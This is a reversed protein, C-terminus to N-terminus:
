PVHCVIVAHLNGHLRDVPTAYGVCFAGISSSEPCNPLSPAASRPGTSTARRGGVQRDAGVRVETAHVREHAALEPDHGLGLYRDRRRRRSIGARGRRSERLHRAATRALRSRTVPRGRRPDRDVGTRAHVSHRHSSRRSARACRGGREAGVAHLRDHGVRRHGQGRARQAPTPTETNVAEFSPMEAASPMEYDTLTSTLPNGDADYVYQEWLAQAMGQAIGGHQQGAVILPNFIRGCDDVAIHRIPTVYGTDLDVEVVAVHAGFPFTPGDQAFTSVAHLPQQAALQEWTLASAPVGVVGVRGDDNVVIDDPNAELLTAAVERAQALVAETADLVASGGLQLSRSGGTGGGSPVAATDSQVFEVQEIPIGLRDAVIMAFSTAHGQGHASTGVHITASGDDNCPLPRTSM